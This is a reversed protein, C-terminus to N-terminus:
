IPRKGCSHAVHVNLIIQGSDKYQIPRIVKLITEDVNELMQLPMLMGDVYQGYFM